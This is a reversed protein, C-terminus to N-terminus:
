GIVTFEQDEQLTTNSFNGMKDSSLNQHIMLIQSNGFISSLLLVNTDHKNRGFELFSELKDIIIMILNKVMIEYNFYGTRFKFNQILVEYIIHFIRYLIVVKVYEFVSYINEVVRCRM